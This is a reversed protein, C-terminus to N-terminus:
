VPLVVCDWSTFLPLPAPFSLVAAGAASLLLLLLVTAPPVGLPSCAAAPAARRLSRWGGSARGVRQPRPGMEGMAGIATGGCHARM